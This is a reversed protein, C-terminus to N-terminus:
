MSAGGRAAVKGNSSFGLKSPLAHASFFATFPASRQGWTIESLAARSRSLLRVLPDSGFSREAWRPRERDTGLGSEVVRLAGATDASEGVVTRLRGELAAM